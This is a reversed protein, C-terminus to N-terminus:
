RVGGGERFDDRSVSGRESTESSGDGDAEMPSEGASPEEETPQHIDDGENLAFLDSVVALAQELESRLAADAAMRRLRTTPAHLMKNLAAEVMKSLAGREAESLARLRGGLSREVERTLVTRLRRRLLVITPTVQEADAWREYGQTEAAVIAEAKEAERLRNSLGEAVVRSLDDVNYLFVGDLTEVGPEVDRPVALDVFFLSRGRRVRKFRAVRDRGIIFGPASTTTIVIDAEVLAEDLAEFPRGEVGMSTSLEAIRQRNRGVVVLRAGAQRLLRAVTEGMEGSGVLVASRERFDGFIQRALDVAVSPVSVQGAGINTETRVRKASRLARPVIQNLTSGLTGADRATDFAQKLQGLIQPEGIVLSDLSAAVRFLHRVADRGVHVYLHDRVNPAREVLCRVVSKAISDLASRSRDRAAAVIEVRNCTSVALAEDIAPQMVLERLLDAVEGSSLALEERVEIPATRHSLGVVVIM